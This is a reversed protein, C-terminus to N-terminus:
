SLLCSPLEMFRRATNRVEENKDNSLIARHKDSGHFVVLRRVHSDSDKILIDHHRKNGVRVVAGRVKSDLDRVLINHHRTNGYLAVEYRVNADEDEVLIDRHKNTGWSAVLMRVTPSVDYLLIDRHKNTGHIAVYRRVNEDKDNILIDRHENKGYEVVTCRVASHPDDVLMNRYHNSGFRAIKCRSEISLKQILEKSISRSGSLVLHVIAGETGLKDFDKKTLEQVIKIKNTAVKSDIQSMDDIDGLLEVECIRTEKGYDYYHFVDDFKTCAHFGRECIIPEENMEYTKGIEYQFDRCTLNKDFAKYAKMKCCDEREMLTQKVKEYM